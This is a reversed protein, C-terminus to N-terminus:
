KAEIKYKKGFKQMPVRGRFRWDVDIRWCGLVNGALSGRKRKESPWTTSSAQEDKIQGLWPLCCTMAHPIHITYDGLM